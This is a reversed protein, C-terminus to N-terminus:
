ELAKGDIFDQPSVEKTEAKGDATIKTVMVGGAKPQVVPMSQLAKKLAEAPDPGDTDARALRAANFLKFQNKHVYVSFQADFQGVSDLRFIFRTIGQKRLAKAIKKPSASQGGHLGNEFHERALQYGNAELDIGMTEAKRDDGELDELYAAPDQEICEHCTLEGEFNCYSAQWCYSDPSTRVAKGCQYCDTWEDSWELEIGLRKFLKAVRPLTADITESERTAPNWQSIDNWNGFAIVGSEPDAYGPEAYANSFTIEDLRSEACSNSTTNKAAGIIWRARQRVLEANRLM